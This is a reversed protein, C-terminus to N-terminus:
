KELSNLENDYYENVPEVEIAKQLYYRADQIYGSEKLYKGIRYYYIGYYAEQRLFIKPIVEELPMYNRDVILEALYEIRYRVQFPNYSAAKQTEGKQYLVDARAFRWNLFVNGLCVICILGFLIASAGKLVIDQKGVEGGGFVLGEDKLFYFYLYESILFGYWIYHFIGNVNVLGRVWFLLSSVLIVLLYYKRSKDQEGLFWALLRAHKCVLLLIICVLVPIGLNFAIDLFENHARDLSVPVDIGIKYMYSPLIYGANDLGYGLVPNESIALFTASWIHKRSLDVIGSEKFRQSSNVFLVGVVIGWLVLMFSLFVAVKRASIKEWIWILALLFLLGFVLAFSMRSNAWIINFVACLIAIAQYIKATTNKCFWFYYILFPLIMVCFGALFNAQGFTGVARGESVSLDFGIQRIQFFSIIFNMIVPVPLIIEFLWRYSEKQRLAFELMCFVFIVLHLITYVGFRKDYNGWITTIFNQSSVISLVGFVLLTFAIAMFLFKRFDFKIKKVLEVVASQRGLLFSISTLAFFITVLVRFAIIKPLEFSLFFNYNRTIPVFVFFSAITVIQLIEIIELAKKVKL